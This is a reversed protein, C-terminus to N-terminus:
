PPGQIRGGGPDPLPVLNAPPGLPLEGICPAPIPASPTSIGCCPWGSIERRFRRPGTTCSARLGAQHLRIPFRRALHPRVRGGPLVEAEGYVTCSSLQFRGADRRPSPLQASAPRGASTTTSTNRPHQSVTESPRTRPSTSPAPFQGHCVRSAMADADGCDVRHWEIERDVIRRIGDVAEERSNRLDDVIVPAFLRSRAVRGRHPIRHLRRRRDGRHAQRHPGETMGFYRYGKRPLQTLATDSEM